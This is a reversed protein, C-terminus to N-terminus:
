RETKSAKLAILSVWSPVKDNLSPFSSSGVVAMETLPLSMIGPLTLISLTTVDLPSEIFSLISGIGPDSTILSRM